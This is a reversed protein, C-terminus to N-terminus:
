AGMERRMRRITELDVRLYESLSKDNTVQRLLHPINKPSTM